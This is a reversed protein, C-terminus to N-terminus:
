RLGGAFVECVYVDGSDDSVVGAGFHTYDTRLLNMRHSPSAHLARHALAVSRARAVNEGVQKAVLGSAEFRLALDGDGLDHAVSGARKMQEAHALALDDLRVDRALAPLAESSRLAATMRALAAAHDNVGTAADEGPAAMVAEEGAPPEVDAFVRAELLPQPGTALEGVLQVTFPGPRDLAFRARVRISQQEIDSTRDVSTPITRPLGRPGLVVLKASSAPVRLLASFTLWEGTRARTPLPDLDALADIVVAVFLESGHHDAHESEPRTFAVGCRTGPHKLRELQARITEDDRPGRTSASVIRPRVHPEGYARLLSVVRDPDPAGLGHARESALKTAVRVLAGDPAGCAAMLAAVREDFSAAPWPSRTSDSRISPAVL